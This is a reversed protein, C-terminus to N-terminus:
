WEYNKSTLFSFFICQFNKKGHAVRGDVMEPKFSSSPNWIVFGRIHKHWKFCVKIKTPKPNIEQVINLIKKELTCSRRWRVPWIQSQKLAETKSITFAKKSLIQWSMWPIAERKSVFVSRKFLKSVVKELTRNLRWRGVLTLIKYCLGYKLIQSQM